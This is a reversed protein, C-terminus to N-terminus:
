RHWHDARRLAHFATLVTTQDFLLIRCFELSAWFSGQRVHVAEYWGVGAIYLPVLSQQRMFKVQQSSM